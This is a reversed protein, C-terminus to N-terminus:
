KGNTKTLHSADIAWKNQHIYHRLKGKTESIIVERIKLDNKNFSFGKNETRKKFIVKRSGRKTSHLTEIEQENKKFIVYRIQVGPKGSQTWLLRGQGDTLEDM